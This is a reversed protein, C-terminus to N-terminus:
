KNKRCAYIKYVYFVYLFFIILELFVFIFFWVNLYEDYSEPTFATWVFTGLHQACAYWVIFLLLFLIVTAKLYKM